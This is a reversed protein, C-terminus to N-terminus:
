LGKVINIRGILPCPLYQQRRTYEETEKKLLVKWQLPREDEQNPKNRSIKIFREFTHNIWLKEEM